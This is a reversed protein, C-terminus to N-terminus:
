KKLGRRKARQVVPAFIRKLLQLKKHNDMAATAEQSRM